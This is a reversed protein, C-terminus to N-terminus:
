RDMVSVGEADLKDELERIRERIRHLRTQTIDEEDRLQRLLEDDSLRPWQYGAPVCLTEPFLVVRGLPVPEWGAARLAEIHPRLYEQYDLAPSPRYNEM